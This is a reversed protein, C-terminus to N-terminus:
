VSVLPPCFAGASISITDPLWHTVLVDVGVQSGGQHSWVWSWPRYSLLSSLSMSSIASSWITWVLERMLAPSYAQLFLIVLSNTRCYIGRGGGNFYPAPCLLYYTNGVRGIFSDAHSIWLFFPLSSMRRAKCLSSAVFPELPWPHILTILHIVLLSHQHCLLVTCVHKVHLVPVHKICRELLYYSCHSCCVSASAFLIAYIKYLIKEKFSWFSQFPSPLFGPTQTQQVGQAWQKRAAM